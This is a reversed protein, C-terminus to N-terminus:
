PHSLFVPKLFFFNKKKKKGRPAMKSRKWPLYLRATTREMVELLEDYAPCSSQAPEAEKGKSM